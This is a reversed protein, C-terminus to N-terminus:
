FIAATLFVNASLIETSNMWRASASTFHVHFHQGKRCREELSSRHSLICNEEKEQGTPGVRVAPCEITSIDCEARESKEM